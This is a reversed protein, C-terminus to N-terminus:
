YLIEIKDIVDDRAIKDVTSVTTQNTQGIITYGGDLHPQALHTIFFQSGGTDKGSLAIGVTGRGYNHENIEDRVQYGPGGNMDNRPDGGQIVFNPVVRMFTLGNYFGTKALDIFNAVMMPSEDAYLELSIDGKKTHIIAHPNTKALEFDAMRNWYAEDHGTGVPGANAEAPSLQEDKENALEIARRRVIYDPDRSTENLVMKNFPHDLKSAAEIIAIRADNMKDARAKILSSKLADVVESSSNGAEALLTAATSRVIVDDDQLYKLLLPTLNEVKTAAAAKLLDSIARPEQHKALLTQLAEQARKGKLEGLGQAYAALSKWSRTEASVAASPNDFFATEGFRAIAIETEPNAGYVASATRFERLFALARADGAERKSRDNKENRKAYDDGANRVDRSGQERQERGPLAPTGGAKEIEGIATVLLLLQNQETPVGNRKRDFERYRGLLGDGMKLLEPVATEDGIAGLATIAASVVHEDNYKLLEILKTESTRDKIVGLARAAYMRVIASNEQLLPRLKPAAEAVGDKLRAIVNAAQWRIDSNPSKLQEIVAGYTTADKIRLLATLALSYEYKERNSEETAAADASSVKEYNPLRAAIAAAIGKVGDAGLRKASGKNSTIKGLAEIARGCTEVSSQKESLLKLFIPVAAENEIEGLAFAIKAQLRPDDSAKLITLLQTVGAPAGIRGIALICRQKIRLDPVKLLDTLSADLLREDEHQIINALQQKENAANTSNAEALQQGAADRITDANGQADARALSQAASCLM